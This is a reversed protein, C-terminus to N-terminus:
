ALLVLNRTKGRFGQDFSVLTLGASEAFAILYSDVWEKPSSRKERSHDRLMMEIEAPEDVFVIRTDELWRDYIKWAGAQSLADNGMVAQTTLLRLFGLQTIRCFCINLDPPVAELWRAAIKNHVHSALTLAIWVNVDPFVSLTSSRPM